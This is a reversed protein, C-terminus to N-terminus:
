RPDRESAASQLISNVLTQRRGQQQKIPKASPDQGNGQSQGGDNEGDSSPAVVNMDPPPLELKAMYKLETARQQLLRRWNSGRKAARDKNTTLYNKLDIDASASDKAPDIPEQGEPTWECEYYRDPNALFDELSVGLGWRGDISDELIAYMVFLEYIEQLEDIMLDQYVGIRRNNSNAGQREGSYTGKTYDRAVESRTLGAGAAAAGVNTEMFPSYNAGGNQKQVVTLKEDVEGEFILAPEMPYQKGRDRSINDPQIDGSAEGGDGPGASNTRPPLSSGFVDQSGGERNIVLAPMAETKASLITANDYTDVNHIKRMASVLRTVGHTQRVRRQRMFHLVRDASYPVSEWTMSGSVGAPQFGYWDNLPRKYFWYQVPAGNSDIEIGRRIENKTDPNSIKVVDLQEPEYSQLQLGVSHPNPTYSHIWFHEGAEIMEEIAMSQKQWFSQKKAVDCFRKRSAWRIILEDIKANFTELEEGKDDKASAVPMIGRGVTMVGYGEVISDAIWNDRRMSRSRNLLIDYDALIAADASLRPSNLDRNTRDRRAADYVSLQEFRIRDRRRQLAGSPNTISVCRDVFRGIAGLMSKSDKTM